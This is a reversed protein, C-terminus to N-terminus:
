YGVVRRRSRKRFLFFNALCPEGYNSRLFPALMQRALSAYILEDWDFLYPIGQGAWLWLGALLGLSGKLRGLLKAM